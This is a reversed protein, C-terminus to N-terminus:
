PLAFILWGHGADVSKFGMVNSLFARDAEANKSHVVVHTGFIMEKSRTAFRSIWITAAYCERDRTYPEKKLSVFHIAGLTEPTSHANVGLSFSSAAALHETFRTM